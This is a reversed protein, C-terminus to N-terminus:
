FKMKGQAQKHNKNKMKKMKKQIKCILLEKQYMMKKMKHNNKM